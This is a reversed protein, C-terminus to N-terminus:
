RWENLMDVIYLAEDFTTFPSIPLSLEENAIKEANPFSGNRYGLAQYCANLYPPFPYHINTEVGREMLYHKLFDRNNNVLLPFIHFSSTDLFEVKPLHLNRNSINEIYLKAISKRKLNDNNLHDIKLELLKAQLGDLRSNVGLLEHNYKTRSGYNSIKAVRLMIEEDFGTIGGADGFAGLNKGPYFSWCCLNGHSGIKKGQFLSGHAQAADEILHLGYAGCFNKIKKLDAPMGFLHVLIVAKTSPTVHKELEMPDIAFNKLSIDVPVPIAGNLSVAMWTAIFTQAPVLVEDGPGIGLAKLAISIADLGNGVGSCFPAGIYNKFKDEFSKVAEGGIYFSNSLFEQMADDIRLKDRLYFRKLNSYEIVM